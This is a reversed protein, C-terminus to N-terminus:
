ILLIPNGCLQVPSRSQGYSFRPWTCRTAMLLKVPVSGALTVVPTGRVRVATFVILVQTCTLSRSPSPDPFCLTRPWTRAWGAQPAAPTPTWRDGSCHEPGIVPSLPGPVLASLPVAPSLSKAVVQRLYELIDGIYFGLKFYFLHWKGWNDIQYYYRSFILLELFVGCFYYKPM